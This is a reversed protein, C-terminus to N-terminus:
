SYYVSDGPAFSVEVNPIDIHFIDKGTIIFLDEAELSVRDTSWNVPNLEEEIGCAVFLLLLFITTAYFYIM